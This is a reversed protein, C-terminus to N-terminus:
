NDGGSRVRSIGSKKGLVVFIVVGEEMIMLLDGDLVIIKVNFLKLLEM